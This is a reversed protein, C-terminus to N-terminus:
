CPTALILIGVRTCYGPCVLVLVAAKRNDSPDTFALPLFGRFYIVRDELNPNRSPGAVWGHFGIM